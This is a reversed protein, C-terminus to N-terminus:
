VFLLHLDSEMDFALIWILCMLGVDLHLEFLIGVDVGSEFDLDM